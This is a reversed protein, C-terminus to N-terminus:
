DMAAIGTGEGPSTDALPTLGMGAADLVLAYDGVPSASGSAGFDVYAQVTAALQDFRTESIGSGPDWVPSTGIGAGWASWMEALLEQLPECGGGQRCNGNPDAIIPSADATPAFTRVLLDVCVEGGDAVTLAGLWSDHFSLADLQIPSTGIGSGHSVVRTLAADPEVTQYWAADVGVVMPVTALEWSYNVFRLTDVEHVRRDAYDLGIPSTGIGAAVAFEALAALSCSDIRLFGRPRDFHDRDAVADVQFAVLPGDEARWKPSVFVAVGQGGTRARRSALVAGTFTGYVTMGRVPQGAEDVVEVEVVARRGLPGFERVALYSTAFYRSRPATATPGSAAAIARDAALYGRGVRSDLVQHVRPRATEGLLARLQFPDLAPNDHLMAAAVGSAEAAAQSTGAYFYYGFDTPDGVFSQALVAEPNGDGDVDQDIVGAPASLDVLTGYNSYDTPALWEAADGWPQEPDHVPYHPRLRSAGVAIVERFAAPYTVVPAGHNGVAAVMVVGNAAAHDVAGQLYRSPFYAPSFSLSMNIVDAGQDVAYYIGEALALETGQNSGDLVKVPMLAAGPAVPAIGSAAAIVGAVHTGHGQDDNPHADDHVFDYGPVFEVAALDPAVAYAGAGDAHDQYAIGTDLVAVTVGQGGGWSTAPDLRMAWLNWQMEIPSTGIGTAGLVHHLEVEAVSPHDALARAAITAAAHDAFRVLYRDSRPGYWVVQGGVGVVVEDITEAGSEAVLGVVLEGEIVPGAVTDIAREGVRNPGQASGLDPPEIITGTCGALALM